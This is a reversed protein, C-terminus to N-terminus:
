TDYFTQTFQYHLLVNSCKCNIINIDKENLRLMICSMLSFKEHKKLFIFAAVTTIFTNAMSYHM